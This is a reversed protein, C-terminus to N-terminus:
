GAQHTQSLARPLTLLSQIQAIIGSNEDFETCRSLSHETAFM